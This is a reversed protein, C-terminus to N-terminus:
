QEIDSIAIPPYPFKPLHYIEKVLLRGGPSTVQTKICKIEGHEVMHQFVPDWFKPSLGPGIAVQLMSRSVYPYVELTHNIRDKVEQAAVETDTPHASVEQVTM